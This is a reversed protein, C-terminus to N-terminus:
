HFFMIKAAMSQDGGPSAVFVLYVGTRVRIDDQDTGQWVAQGGESRGKYVLDGNVNTIRVTSNKPLGRIAIPADHDKRVPNPYVVVEELSETGKTAVDRYAIIGQDTGFFLEGTEPHIAINEIADSILPTESESFRHIQEKGDPSVHFVGSNETGIWKEDAGNVEISSITENKLLPEVFGDYNVLVEEADSPNSSLLDDPTYFVAIGKNTGVWVEQDADEAISNVLKGPLGGKGVQNNLLRYEDDSPDKTTGQDDLVFVGKEPIVIWKQDTSTCTVSGLRDNSTFRPGYDLSHWEGGSTLVKIPTKTYSNTVWLNGSDDFSCGWACVVDSFSSHTELSSNSAGHVKILDDGQFEWLGNGWTGIFAHAPDNPDIAVSIPDSLSDLGSHTRDNLNQWDDKHFHFIGDNRFFPSWLSNAGGTAVWLHDGRANMEFVNTTAPGDLLIREGNYSNKLKALGNLRDSFWFSDKWLIAQTPRPNGSWPQSHVIRTQEGAENLALVYGGSQAIVLKGNSHELDAINSSRPQVSFGKWSSNAYQLISDRLSDVSPVQISFLREDFSVLDTFAGNLGQPSEKRWNQFDSLNPSSLSAKYIASSTAAFISDGLFAISNVKVSSSNAGIMYSGQVEKRELDMKVIGFGCALYAMKERFTIDHVTKSGIISSERIDNIPWVKQDSLLDIAGDRYGIVLLGAKMNYRITSIGIDSLAGIKNIREISNDKPKYALIGNRTAAYVKEPGHTVSICEGYPFHDRWSDIPVQGSYQSEAISSLSLLFILLLGSPFAQIM